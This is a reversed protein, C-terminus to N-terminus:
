HSTRVGEYFGEYRIGFSPHPAWPKSKYPSLHNSLKKSTPIIFSIKSFSCLCTSTSLDAVFSRTKSYVDILALITPPHMEKAVRFLRNAKSISMAVKDMWNYLVDENQVDISNNLFEDLPSSFVFRGIGLSSADPVKILITVRNLLTQLM